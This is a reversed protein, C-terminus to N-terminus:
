TIMHPNSLNSLFALRPINSHNYIKVFFNFFFYTSTLNKGSDLTKLSKGTVDFNDLTFNEFTVIKRKFHLILNWKIKLEEPRYNSSEFLVSCYQTDFPLRRLNMRCRMMSTVFKYFTICGDPFLTAIGHEYNLHQYSTPVQNVIYLDPFWIFQSLNNVDLHMSTSYVNFECQQNKTNNASLYSNNIKVWPDNNAGAVNKSLDFKLKPELWGILFSYKMKFTMDKESFAYMDKVNLSVSLVTVNPYLPTKSEKQGNIEYILSNNVRM